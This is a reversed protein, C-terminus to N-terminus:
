LNGMHPPFSSFMISLKEHFILPLPAIETHAIEQSRHGKAGHVARDLRPGGLTGDGHRPIRKNGRM